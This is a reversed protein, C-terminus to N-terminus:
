YGERQNHYTPQTNAKGPEIRNACSALGHFEIGSLLGESLLNGGAHLSQLVQPVQLMLDPRGRDSMLRDSFNDGALM